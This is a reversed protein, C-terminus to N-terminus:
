VGKWLNRSQSAITFLKELSAGDEQEIAKQITQLIQQYTKLEKLVEQRNALTIDRWMEPSSGAIRTFDRFGAGAHDFKMSADESNAIQLMLAYSLVHPLHSVAAFIHDHQLAAMQYVQSGLRTWLQIIREIDQPANEQLPCVIVQRDQYLDDKAAAAGHLAGGAIPHAPVFQRVAEGLTEKATAVVDLKTSGVDMVLTHSNLGQKIGELVSKTQAVPVCFIILDAEQTLQDLPVIVDVAGMQLALNTNTSSRGSGVIRSAIQNKKLALGLSAGLLGVGVIGVTPFLIHNAQATSM